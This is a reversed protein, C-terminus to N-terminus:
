PAIRRMPQRTPMPCFSSRSPSPSSSTLHHPLSNIFLVTFVSRGQGPRNKMATYRSMGATTLTIVGLIFYINMFSVCNRVEGVLDAGGRAELMMNFDTAAPPLSILNTAPRRPASHLLFSPPPPSFKGFCFPVKLLASWPYPRRIGGWNLTM